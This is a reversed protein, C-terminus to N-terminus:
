DELNRLAKRCQDSTFGRYQLFRLQRVQEKRDTPPEEGFKRQRTLRAWELWDETMLVDAILEEDVGRQKLSQRINLPGHGKRSEQRVYAEAFRNDSQWNREALEDLIAAIEAASGGLAALKERLEQRTHERRSLFALARSRLAVPSLPSTPESM